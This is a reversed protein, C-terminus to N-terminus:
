LPSSTEQEPTLSPEILKFICPPVGPYLTDKSPPNVFENTFWFEDIFM